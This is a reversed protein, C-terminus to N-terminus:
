VMGKRRQTAEKAGPHFKKHEHHKSEPRTLRGLLSPNDRFGMYEKLCEPCGSFLDIWADHAACKKPLHEWYKFINNQALTAM